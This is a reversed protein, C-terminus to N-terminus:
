QKKNKMEKYLDDFAKEYPDFPAIILERILFAVSIVSLAIVIIGIIKLIELASM